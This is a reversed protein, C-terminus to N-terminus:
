QIRFSQRMYLFAFGEKSRKKKKIIKSSTLITIDYLYDKMSTTIITSHCRNILISMM